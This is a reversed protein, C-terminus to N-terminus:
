GFRRLFRSCHVLLVEHHVKKEKRLTRAHLFDAFIISVRNAKYVFAFHKRPTFSQQM